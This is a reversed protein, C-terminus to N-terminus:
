TLCVRLCIGMRCEVQRIRILTYPLTNPAHVTKPFAGQALRVRPRQTFSTPLLDYESRVFLSHVFLSGRLIVEFQKYVFNYMMKTKFLLLSM